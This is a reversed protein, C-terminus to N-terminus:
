VHLEVVVTPILLHEANGHGLKGYEGHGVTCVEGSAMAVVTHDSGRRVERVVGAEEM